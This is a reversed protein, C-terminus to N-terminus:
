IVRLLRNRETMRLEVGTVVVTHQNTVPTAVVGESHRGCGPCAAGVDQQAVGAALHRDAISLAPDVSCDEVGTLSSVSSTWRFCLNFFFTQNM